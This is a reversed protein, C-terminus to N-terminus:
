NCYRKIVLWAKQQGLEGAKSLAVCAKTNEQQHILLLALNFYADAFEPELKIARNFDFIAGDYQGTIVKLNARNYYAVALDPNLDIARNFDEFVLTYDMKTRNMKATPISKGDVSISVSEDISNIFEIMKLSAHARALYSFVFEPKLLIAKNFAEIATNFDHLKEALMGRYLLFEFNLPNNKLEPDILHQISSYDICSDKLNSLKISFNGIGKLLPVEQNSFRYDIKSENSFVLLFDEIPDIGSYVKYISEYGAFTSNFDAELEIIKAYKKSNIANLSTDMNQANIKNMAIQYDNAADKLQNLSKKNIFRMYYAEGFDPYLEIAKDFDEIAARYMELETNIIGRNYYSLLHNPKLECVKDLDLIAESKKELQLKLMARNYYALANYPNLEIVKDYDALTGEFDQLHYKALARAYYTYANNPRFKLAQSFDKIALVYELQEYHILGRRVYAEDNFQNLSLAMNCDYIASEYEKLGTKAIARYIYLEPVNPNLKLANNFDDIAASYNKLSIKTLGRNILIGPNDREMQAARDFDNLASNYDQLSNKAVGRYHFADPLFPNLEIVKTFDLVAGTYDSMGYKAIARLFYAEYLEPKIKIIKNLREIAADNKSQGIDNRANELNLRIDLQANVSIYFSFLSILILFHRLM